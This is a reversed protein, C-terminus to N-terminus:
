PEHNRSHKTTKSSSHAFLHREWADFKFLRVERLRTCLIVKRIDM